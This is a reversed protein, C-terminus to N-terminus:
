KIKDFINSFQRNISEVRHGGHIFDYCAAFAVLIMAIGALGSIFAQDYGIFNGTPVSPITTTAITTTAITTTTPLAGFEGWMGIQVNPAPGFGDTGMWGYLETPVLYLTLKQVILNSSTDNSVIKFSYSQPSYFFDSFTFNLPFACGGGFVPFSDDSVAVLSDSSNYAEVHVVQFSPYYKMCMFALTDFRGQTTLNVYERYNSSLYYANNVDYSSDTLSEDSIGGIFDENAAFVSAFVFFTM